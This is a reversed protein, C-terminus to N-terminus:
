CILSKWWHFFRKDYSVREAPASTASIHLIQEALDLIGFMLITIQGTTQGLGGHATIDMQITTLFQMKVNHIAEESTITASWWSLQLWILKGSNIKINTKQLKKKKANAV